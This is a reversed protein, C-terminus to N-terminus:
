KIVGTVAWVIAVSLLAIILGIIARTITQKASTINAPDGRAIIYLFGGKIIFFIAIYAVIVFAAQIVNLAIQVAFVRLEIGDKGIKKIACDAGETLGKYWAPIGLVTDTCAAQAVPTTVFLATMFSALIAANLMFLRAKIM